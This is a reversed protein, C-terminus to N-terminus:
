LVRRDGPGRRRDAVMGTGSCRGCDYWNGAPEVMGLGVAGGYPMYVKGSGRSLIKELSMTGTGPPMTGVCAPCPYSRNSSMKSAALHRLPHLAKALPSSGPPEPSDGM